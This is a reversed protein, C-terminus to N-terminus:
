RKKPQARTKALLSGQQFAFVPFILLVASTLYRTGNGFNESLIVVLLALGVGLIKLSPLYNKPLNNKIRKKMKTKRLWWFCFAFDSIILLWFFNEKRRVCSILKDAARKQAMSLYERGLQVAKDPFHRIAEVADPYHGSLGPSEMQSSIGSKKIQTLVFTIPKVKPLSLGTVLVGLILAVLFLLRKKCKPIAALFIVAGVLYGMWVRVEALLVISCIMSLWFPWMNKPHQNKELDLFCSIALFFILWVLPERLLQSTYLLSSPLFGLGFSVALSTTPSFERFMRFALPMLALHLLQNLWLGAFLPHLMGKAALGLLIVYLASPPHGSAEVIHNAVKQGQFFYNQADAFPVWFGPALVKARLFSPPSLSLAYLGGSVLAQVLAAALM